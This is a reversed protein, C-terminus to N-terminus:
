SRRSARETGGRSRPASDARSPFRCATLCPRGASPSRSTRSPFSSTAREEDEKEEKTADQVTSATAESADVIANLADLIVSAEDKRAASARVTEKYTLRAYYAAALVALLMLVGLVAFFVIAIVELVVETNM